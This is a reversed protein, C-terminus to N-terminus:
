VSSLGWGSNMVEPASSQGRKDRDGTLSNDEM